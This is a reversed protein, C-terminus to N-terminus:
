REHGRGPSDRRIHDRIQAYKKAVTQKAWRLAHGAARNVVMAQQMLFRGIAGPTGQQVQDPTVGQVERISAEVDQVARAHRARRVADGKQTPVGRRELAAVDPGLKPEPERDIGQDKLSRHDVREDFGSEELTRNVQDAWAKRWDKLLGRDNWDRNKKGFGDPGIERTTLLVHAHPQDGGDSAHSLHLSVDAVMGREVFNDNVFGKVLERQQDPALERPLALVMERALQADKRREKAEVANWLSGRETAWEPVDQPALIEKHLIGGKRTYDHLKQYREDQLRDGARYAAAAVASRGASRTVVKAEFRYIAM